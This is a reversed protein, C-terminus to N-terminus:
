NLKKILENYLLKIPHSKFRLMYQTEGLKTRRIVRFGFSCYYDDLSYSTTWFSVKNVLRNKCDELADKMLQTGYGKGQFEKDVIFHEIVANPGLDCQILKQYLPQSISYNIFGVPMGDVLYVKSMIEESKFASLVNEDYLRLYEEDTFVNTTVLRPMDQLAIRKLAPEYEDNYPHIGNLTDGDNDLEHPEDDEHPEHDDHYHKHDDFEDKNVHDEDIILGDFNGVLNNVDQCSTSMLKKNLNLPKNFSFGSVSTIKSGNQILFKNVTKKSFHKISHKMAQINACSLLFM